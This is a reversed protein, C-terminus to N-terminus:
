QERYTVLNVLVTDRDPAGAQNWVLGSDGGGVTLASHEKQEETVVYMGALLALAMSVVAIRRGFSSEIFVSWISVPGQAEIREMVRAYFGPRPEAEARLNKLLLAQERMAEVEGSCEQCHKLHEQLAHGDDALVDELRDRITRHM